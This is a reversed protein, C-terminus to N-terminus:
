ALPQVIDIKIAAMHDIDDGTEIDRCSPTESSPIVWMKRGELNTIARNDIKGEAEGEAALTAMHSLVEYLTSQETIAVKNMAAIEEESPLAGEAKCQKWLAIYQQTPKADKNRMIAGTAQAMSM